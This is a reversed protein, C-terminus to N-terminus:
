PAAVRRYTVFRFGEHPEVADVTFVDGVLHEYPPFFTDGAYDGEVLTLEMRDAKPLFQEYIAAGGGIFVQRADAVAAMAADTSPYAEVAEMADFHEPQSTLVVNRRKPLPGGFQHVISEFTRRGMLLPYGTTLRKFRKLDAPIHWPLDNDKGIVRNDEAVAAIIVLEPVATPRPQNPPPQGVPSVRRGVGRM